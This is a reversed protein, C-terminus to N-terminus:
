GATLATVQTSTLAKNWIAVESLQGDLFETRSGTSTTGAGITLPRSNAPFTFGAFATTGVLTGNRYLKMDTGDYTGVIHYWQSLSLATPDQVSASKGAGDDLVFTPKLGNTVWLGFADLNTGGIDQHILWRSDGGLNKR